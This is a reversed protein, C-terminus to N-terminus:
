GPIQWDIPPLGSEQLMSNVQSFCRCGRFRRVSLPSPHACEIVRHLPNTVLAHKARAKNGWLLFIVPTGGANVAAIVRDTFEEWGRRKHSDASRARVTLVTNLLLIGQRAWSELNGHAPPSFGVDTQLEKYINRLSMPLPRVDPKVSFCLGHAHGPTPYPDQGLLVVKVRDPPTAELAHFIEARAPLIEQGAAVEAELFAQLEQYYPQEVEPQLAKHWAAPLPPLFPM